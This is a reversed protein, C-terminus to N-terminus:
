PSRSADTDRRRFCRVLSTGFMLSLSAGEWGGARSGASRVTAMGASALGLPSMKPPQSSECISRAPPLTAAWCARPRTAVTATVAIVKWRGTM